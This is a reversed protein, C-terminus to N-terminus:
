SFGCLVFLYVVMGKERVFGEEEDDAEEELVDRDRNGRSPKKNKGESQIRKLQIHGLSERWVNLVILPKIARYLMSLMAAFEQVEKCMRVSKIWIPLQKYWMPHLFATPISSEFSILTSRLTNVILAPGQYIEGLWKFDYLRFKNGLARRKDREAQHDHKSSALSNSFYQNEYMVYSGEMGLKFYSKAEPAKQVSAAPSTVAVSTIADSGKPETQKLTVKEGAQASETEPLLKENCALSSELASAEPQPIDKVEEVVMAESGKGTGDVIPTSEVEMATAQDGTATDRIGAEEQKDTVDKELVGTEKGGIGIVDSRNSSQAENDSQMKVSGQSESDDRTKNDGGVQDVIMDMEQSLATVECAEEEVIQEKSDEKSVDEKSVEEKSVDEKSIEEKLVEEKPFEEKSQSDVVDPENRIGDRGSEKVMRCKKETKQDDQNGFFDRFEKEIEVSILRVQKALVLTSGDTIEKDNM